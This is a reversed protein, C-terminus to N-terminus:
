NKDTKFLIVRTSRVQAMKPIVRVAERRYINHTFFIKDTSLNVFCIQLFYSMYKCCM